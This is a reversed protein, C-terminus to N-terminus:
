EDIRKKSRTILVDIKEKIAAIEDVFDGKVTFPLKYNLYDDLRKNMEVLPKVGYGNVFYFFMLVILITVM